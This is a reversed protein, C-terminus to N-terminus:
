IYLPCCIFSSWFFNTKRISCTVYNITTDVPRNVFRCCRMKRRFGGSSCKRYFNILHSIKLIYLPTLQHLVIFFSSIKRTKKNKWWSLVDIKNEILSLIMWVFIDSLHKPPLNLIWRRQATPNLIKYTLDVSFLCQERQKPLANFCNYLFIKL